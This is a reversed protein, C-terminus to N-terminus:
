RTAALELAVPAITSRAQYGSRATGAANSQVANAADRIV